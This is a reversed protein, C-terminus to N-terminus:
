AEFDGERDQIYQALFLCSCYSLMEDFITHGFPLPIAEDGRNNTLEHPFELSTARNGDNGPYRSQLITELM